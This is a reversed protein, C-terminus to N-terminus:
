QVLTYIIGKPLLIDKLEDFRFFIDIEGFNWPALDGPNYHFGIGERSIFLNDFKTVASKYFGESQLSTTINFQKQLRDTILKKLKEKYGPTFIADATIRNGTKLNIVFYIKDWVPEVLWNSSNQKICFTLVFNENFLIQVDQMASWKLLSCRYDFANTKYHTAYNQYYHDSLFKLMNDSANFVINQGFYYGIIYDQVSDEVAKNINSEPYLYILDITYTPFLPKDSFGYTQNNSYAEFIVSGFYDTETFSFDSRSRGKNDIIYGIIKHPNIFEGNLSDGNKETSLFGSKQNAKGAFYQLQGDSQNYYTGFISDGFKHLDLVMNKKQGLNGELHIYKNEPLIVQAFLFSSFGTMLILIYFSILGAINLQGPLIIKFLKRKIM